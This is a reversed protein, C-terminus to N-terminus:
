NSHEVEDVLYAPIWELGAARAARLRREGHVLEYGQAAARVVVPRLVGLRRISDLMDAAVSADDRAAHETRIETCRIQQLCM